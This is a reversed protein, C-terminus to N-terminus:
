LPILTLEAFIYAMISNARGFVALSTCFRFPFITANFLNTELAVSLHKGKKRVNFFDNSHVFSHYCANLSKFAYREEGGSSLGNLGPSSSNKYRTTEGVAILIAKTLSFSPTYFGTYKVLQTSRPTSSFYGRISFSAKANAVPARFSLDYKWACM